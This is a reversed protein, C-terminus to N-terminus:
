AEKGAPKKGPDLSELLDSIAKAEDRVQDSDMGFANLITKQTATVAHDMRYINDSLRVMEIKELEKVAAPVTMYNRRPGGDSLDADKLLCYMRNRIILAVFEILIKSACLGDSCVRMSKDGLYSKDGRFLKESPDRGKYLTLADAATMEDSTVIVYYGCLRLDQSVVEKKEEWFALTGKKGDMFLSFYRSYLPGYDFAKGKGKRLLSALHAIRRELEDRGAAAKDASYYIHFWREKGDEPHLKRRVTTGYVGYREVLCDRNTEFSGARGMVLSSVLPSMGKVMLIFSFGNRDMFDINGRSFYGRDLIFAANRYGFGKAKGLMDHLASVDAVSGPYEEYFLPVRNNVDYAISYGFVPLGRDDKPHGFEVMELDGAQCNKNTSDYSIYIKDKAKRTGNWADLFGIRQDDTLSALFRSVTSDGHVRMDKTFLPHNYAYDPYYQGANDECVISYAALDLFLGADGGALNGIIRDLGYERIVSRIVIYSGIRLCCSRASWPRDDPLEQGPFFRLFNRNPYMQCADGDSQKGIVAREPICFRKEKHYVSGYQYYLYTGSATKKRTIKGSAEPVPVLFDYFM